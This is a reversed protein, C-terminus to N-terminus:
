CAICSTARYLTLCVRVCIHVCVCVCMRVCVCVCVCVCVMDLSHVAETVLNTFKGMATVYEKWDGESCKNLKDNHDTWPQEVSRPVLRFSINKAQLRNYWKVVFKRACYHWALPDRCM